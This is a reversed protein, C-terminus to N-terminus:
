LTVGAATIIDIAQEVAAAQAGATISAAEAKQSAVVFSVSADAQRSEETRLSEAKLVLTEHLNKRAM